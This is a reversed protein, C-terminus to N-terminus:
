TALVMLLTIEVAQQISGLVDGTQGGLKRRALLAMGIAAVSGWILLGFIQWGTCLLAAAFAIALATWATGPTVPGVRRALGEDRAHPMLAMAFPLAARSLAGIAVLAAMAQAVSGELLAAVGAIRLGLALVLAIVGYTGIRSDRMIELRAARDWGGWIGDALDALGDEHMAGCLLVLTAVACIAAVLVPLGLATALWAVAGAIVGHLIGVLPYAWAAGANREPDVRASPLPLRSLLSFATAIESVKSNM